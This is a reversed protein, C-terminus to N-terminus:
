ELLSAMKAMQAGADPRAKVEVDETRFKACGDEDDCWETPEARGAGCTQCVSKSSIYAINLSLEDDYKVETHKLDVKTVKGKERHEKTASVLADAISEARGTPQFKLVIKKGDEVEKLLVASLKYSKLDNTDAM